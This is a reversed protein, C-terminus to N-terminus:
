LDLWPPWGRYHSEDAVGLSRYRRSFGYGVDTTWELFFLRYKYRHRCPPLPEPLEWVVMAVIFGDDRFAKAHALLAAAM